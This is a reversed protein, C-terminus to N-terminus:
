KEVKEGRLIEKSCEKCIFVHQSLRFDCLCSYMGFPNCRHKCKLWHKNITPNPINMIWFYAGIGEGKIIENGCSKCHAKRENSFEDWIDLYGEHSYKKALELGLIKM